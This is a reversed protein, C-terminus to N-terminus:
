THISDEHRLEKEESLTKPLWAQEAKVYQDQRPVEETEGDKRYIKM